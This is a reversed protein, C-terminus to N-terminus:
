KFALWIYVLEQKVLSKHTSKKLLFFTLVSIYDFFAKNILVTLCLQYHMQGEGKSLTKAFLLPM